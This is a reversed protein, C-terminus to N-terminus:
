PGQYHMFGGYKIAKLGVGIIIVGRNYGVDVRADGLESKLSESDDSLLDLPFSGLSRSLPVM